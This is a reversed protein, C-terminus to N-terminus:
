ERIPLEGTEQFEKFEFEMLIEVGFKEAARIKSAPATPGCVMFDLKKTLGNDVLFGLAFAEDGLKEKLEPSFGVFCMRLRRVAPDHNENTLDRLQAIAEWADESSMQSIDDAALDSKKSLILWPDPTYTM